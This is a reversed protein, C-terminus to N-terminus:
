ARHPWHVAFDTSLTNMESFIPCMQLIMPADIDIRDSLALRGDLPQCPLNIILALARDLKLLIEALDAAFDFLEM